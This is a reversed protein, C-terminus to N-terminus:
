RKSLLLEATTHEEDHLWYPPRGYHLHLRDEYERTIRVPEFYEPASKIDERSLAAYVRSDAWSVREIWAPSLLVKKGPWWNHTAVELYRIAWAEDDVLFGAVHGIEGDTAEIHYGKVAETSRLHSDESEKGTKDPSTKDPWPKDPSVPETAGVPVYTLGAPYFAPGWMYPGGWYAPYGYYGFFEAEQQRSVPRHANIDPSNEVQKKTLSVDLRRGQWDAHVVSIPSILVDRGTLWGGTDVTLYRIAWTEDDFYLEEVTGLDGDEARIAFGKLNTTNTLM